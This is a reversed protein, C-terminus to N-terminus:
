CPTTTQLLQMSAAAKKVLNPFQSFYGNFDFPLIKTTRQHVNKLSVAFNHGYELFESVSVSSHSEFSICELLVSTHTLTSYSHSHGSLSPASVRSFILCIQIWLARELTVQQLTHKVNFISSTKLYTVYAYQLIMLQMRVDNGCAFSSQFYVINKAM